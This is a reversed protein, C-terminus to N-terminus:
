QEGGKKPFLDDIYLWGKFNRKFDKPSMDDCVWGEPNRFYVCLETSGNKFKVLCTICCEGQKINPKESAPHWLNNLFWNIAAKFSEKVDEERYLVMSGIKGIEDENLGYSGLNNLQREAAEEIKKDDIM